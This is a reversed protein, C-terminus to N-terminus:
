RGDGKDETYEADIVGEEAAGGEAAGPAPAGADAGGTQARYLAEAIGHMEKEIRQRAADM